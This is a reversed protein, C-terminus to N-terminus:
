KSRAPELSDSGNESSEALMDIMSEIERNSYAVLDIADEPCVPLCMGCGKCVSTNLHAIEKGDEQVKEIADFPCADACANCWTCAEKNVVAVVPELELQGKSIYSWSKAAAALASQVSETVNKPGQCTGAITIGDIVTEVPRLKMHIENFFKDRGRPLKFLTGVANDSRPVMGTVLVVLDAIIEIEKNGTLIDNVKVVTHNDQRTVEPLDDEYSQFYIDGQQSSETYLVEQKGYTRVGRTFHYNRINRYKKKAHLASHIASTCCYRSCYKNDGRPQRSGVCYIYAIHKVERGHWELKEENLAVLRKFEPLTIVNDIHQYGFEGEEPTYPDFGTAMVVSGVHITLSEEKQSLDIAECVQECEGCRTCHEMDIIARQPYEGPHDTYIAKRKTLGFNFDDDAEEPCVEIAKSM